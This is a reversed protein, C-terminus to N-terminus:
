LIGLGRLTIETIVSFTMGNAKSWVEGVVHKKKVTPKNLRSTPKVEELFKGTKRIVIFDPNYYRIKGTKKNSVYPIKVPEYHWTVVDPNVDLHEMYKLEWGSRYKCVEGTKISTYEGTKYARKKKRQPKKKNLM